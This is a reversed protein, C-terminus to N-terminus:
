KMIDHFSQQLAKLRDKVSELIPKIPFKAHDEKVNVNVKSVDSGDLLALVM